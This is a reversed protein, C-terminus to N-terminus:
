SWIHATDTTFFDLDCRARDALSVANARLTVNDKSDSDGHLSIFLKQVRSACIQDLIHQDESRLSHGYVFLSGRLQGFADLASRLYPSRRIHAQKEETTGECVFLPFEDREIASKVQDVLALEGSYQRKCTNLGKEFLYMAGHLHFFTMEAQREMSWTGVPDGTRAPRFGDAFPIEPPIETHMLTWYLLLDYNLTFKKEFHSLFKRACRYEDDAIDSPRAPHSNTISDLLLERVATADETPELESHGYIPALRSFDRLAKIVREFDATALLEFARKGRPISDIDAQEYLRGYEFIDPRCARSFGNGLLLHREKQEGDTKSKSIAQKFTLINPM